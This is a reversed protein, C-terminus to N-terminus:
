TTLLNNKSAVAQAGTHMLVFCGTGYTNKAMGPDICQQGFLAAHQDGAIGAVPIPAGLLEADTEGYVASSDCVEPLMSRPINLLGLIEDDWAGTHINFLLTRSANSADTLHLRGGTLN